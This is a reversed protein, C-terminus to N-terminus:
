TAWDIPDLKSLVASLLTAARNKLAQSSADPQPASVRTSMTRSLGVDKIKDGSDVKNLTVDQGGSLVDTVFRLDFLLQLLGKESVRTSFAEPESLFTEYASLVQV